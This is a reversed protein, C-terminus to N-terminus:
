PEIFLLYRDGVVAASAFRGSPFILKNYTINNFVGDESGACIGKSTTFLIQRGQIGLREGECIVDSGQIVGFSYKEERHLQEWTTGRFFLVQSLTGVWLGSPTGQLMTVQDSVLRHNTHLDFVGFFSPESAFIVNGRAVLARGGFFGVADGNPPDSFTRHTDGPVTYTGKEWPSVIGNRVFGKEHGNNFYVRDGIRVYRMRGNSTLGTAITSISKDPRMLMLSTDSVFLCSEGYKFGDRAPLASVQVRGRRRSIRGSNDIDVNVAQSLETEGTKLDVSLRVPDLANNLGTTSTLIPIFKAQAM